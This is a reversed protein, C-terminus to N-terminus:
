LRGPPGAAAEAALALMKAASAGMCVRLALAELRPLRWLAALAAASPLPLRELALARLGTASTLALVGADTVLPAHSLV